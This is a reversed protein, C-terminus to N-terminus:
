VGGLGAAVGKGRLAEGRPDIVPEVLALRELVVGFGCALKAEVSPQGTRSAQGVM